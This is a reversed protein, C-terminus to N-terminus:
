WNFWGEKKEDKKEQEPVVPPPFLENIKEDTKGKDYIWAGGAKITRGEGKKLTVITNNM